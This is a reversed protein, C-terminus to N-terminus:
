NLLCGDLTRATTIRAIYNAAPLCETRWALELGQYLKFAGVIEVMKMRIVAKGAQSDRPVKM